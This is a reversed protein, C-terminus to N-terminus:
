FVNVTLGCYEVESGNFSQPSYLNLKKAEALMYDFVKHFGEDHGVTDNCIHSLEHLCVFTLLNVDHLKNFKNMKRSRLCFVIEEGKNVTYSTYQPDYAGERINDPNCRQFLRQVIKNDKYEDRKFHEMLRLVRERMQALLDAAQQKDELDQVKYTRGDVTSTINEINRNKMYYQWAIFALLICIICIEFNIRM